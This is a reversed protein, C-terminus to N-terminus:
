IWRKMTAWGSTGDTPGSELTGTPSIASAAAVGAALAVRVYMETM